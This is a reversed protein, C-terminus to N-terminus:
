KIAFVSKLLNGRMQSKKAKGPKILIFSAKSNQMTNLRAVIVPLSIAL